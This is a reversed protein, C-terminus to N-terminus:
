LAFASLYKVPTEDAHVVPGALVDRRLQDVIPQLLDASRDVWDCM